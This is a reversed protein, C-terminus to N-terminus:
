RAKVFKDRLVRGDELRVEVFYTSAALAALSYGFRGNTSRASFIKQGLLDTITIIARQNGNWSLELKDLAPNQLFHIALESINKSEVGAPVRGVFLGRETAAILIGSSTDHKLMFVNHVGAAKPFNTSHWSQGGDRTVEVMGGATTDDKGQLFLGTWLRQPTNLIVSRQDVELAWVHYEPSALARWTSGYNTTEVISNNLSHWRTAVATAPADNTFVIKPVEPQDVSNPDREAPYAVSWDAGENTSKAIVGNGSGALLIRAADPSVSLTCLGVATDAAGTVKWSLGHDLSRWTPGQFNQGYYLADAPANYALDEGDIGGPDLSVSWTHGGDTSRYLTTKGVAIVVNTDTPVCLFQSISVSNFPDLGAVFSQWTMGGDDSRYIGTTDPTATFVVRGHALPNLAVCPTVHDLTKQWHYDQASARTSVFLLIMFAIFVPSGLLFKRKM